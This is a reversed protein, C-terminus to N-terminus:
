RPLVELRASSQVGHYSLEIEHARLHERVERITAGKARLRFGEAVIPSTEPDLETRKDEGEGRRSGHPINPFPAVGNAVARVKADITREATVARHYEAVAGIM